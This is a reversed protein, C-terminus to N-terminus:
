FFWNLPNWNGGPFIDGLKTAPIKNIEAIISNIQDTSLTYPKDNITAKGTTNLSTIAGDKGYADTLAKAVATINEPTLYIESKFDTKAKGKSALFADAEQGNLKTNQLIGNFLEDYSVNPNNSIIIEANQYDITKQTDSPIAVKATGAANWGNALNWAQQKAIKKNIQEPTDNLTVGSKAYLMATDPDVMAKKIADANSKTTDISNQISDIQSKIYDKQESSFSIIKKGTEDKQNQYFDYLTKYYNIQDVRDANIANISRDILNEAQNIQGTRAAMIAQIVGVRASIDDITKAIRPNRISALGTVEKQQRILDNGETLLTELENTLKQNAEFNENIHLIQRQSEEIQQRFPQSLQQINSIVGEQQLKNLDEIKKNNEDIKAQLDAIIKTNVEQLQNQTVDKSTALNSFYSGNISPATTAPFTPATIGITNANPAVVPNLLPKVPPPNFTGTFPQNGQGYNVQPGLEPKYVPSGTIQSIAEERSIKGSVFDPIVNGPIDRYQGGSIMGELPGMDKLHQEFSGGKYYTQGPKQAM